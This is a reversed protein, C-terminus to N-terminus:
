EVPRARSAESLSTRVVARDRGQTKATYMAADAMSVSDDGALDTIGASFTVGSAHGRWTRAWRDVVGEATAQEVGSLVVLFEEGGYRVVVDQQRTQEHLMYAFDSLVRDGATHGHQDNYGKFHDLDLIVLFASGRLRSLDDALGLRNRAGTLVDTRAAVVLLRERGILQQLLYGPLEASAIWIVVAISVRLIAPATPEDILTFLSGVALPLLVLSRGRPQNLGAYLFCLTIFGTVLQGAAHDIAGFTLIRLLCFLPWILFWWPSTLRRVLVFSIGIALYTLAYWTWGARGLPPATTLAAVGMVAQTALSGVAGVVHWDVRPLEAVQVAV